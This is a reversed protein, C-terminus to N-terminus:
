VFRLDDEMSSTQSPIQSEGLRSKNGLVIMNVERLFSYVLVLIIWFVGDDTMHFTEVVM